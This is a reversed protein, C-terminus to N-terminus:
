PYNGEIRLCIDVFSKFSVKKPLEDIIKDASNMNSALKEESAKENKELYNKLSKQRLERFFVKIKDTIQIESNQSLSETDIGLGKEEVVKKVITTRKEKHKKTMNKTDLHERKYLLIRNPIENPNINGIEYLFQAVEESELAESAVLEEWDLPLNAGLFSWVKGTRYASIDGRNDFMPTKTIGLFINKVFVNKAELQPRYKEIMKSIENKLRGYESSRSIINSEFYKAIVSNVFVLTIPKMSQRNCLKELLKKWFSIQENAMEERIKKREENTEWEEWSKWTRPNISDEIISKKLNNPLTSYKLPEFLVWKKIKNKEKEDIWEAWIEWTMPNIEEKFKPIPDMDASSLVQAIGWKESLEGMFYKYAESNPNFLDGGVSFYNKNAGKKAEKMKESNRSGIPIFQRGIKKLIGAMKKGIGSTAWIIYLDPRKKMKLLENAQDNATQEPYIEEMLKDVLNELEAENLEGGEWIGDQCEKTKIM